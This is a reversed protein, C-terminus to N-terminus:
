DIKKLCGTTVYATVGTESQVLSYSGADSVFKVKTGKSFRGEPPRAQQPGGVYYHESPSNITHTFPGNFKGKKSPFQITQAPPNELHHKEQAVPNNTKNLEETADKKENSPTTDASERSGVAPQQSNNQDSTSAVKGGCGIWLCFVPLCIILTPIQALNKNM